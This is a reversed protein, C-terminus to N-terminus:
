PAGSTRLLAADQGLQLRLRAFPEHAVQGQALRLVWLGVFLPLAPTLVFLWPSRLLGAEPLSLWLLLAVGALTAAVLLCAAGTLQLFLRQQLREGSLALEEAVLSAYASAHEALWQPQAAVLRFVPHIM